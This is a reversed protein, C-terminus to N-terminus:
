CGRKANEMRGSFCMLEGDLVKEEELSWLMGAEKANMLWGRMVERDAPVLVEGFGLCQGGERVVGFDFVLVVKAREFARCIERAAMEGWQGWVEHEPCYMAIKRVMVREEVALMSSLDYVDYNVKACQNGESFLLRDGAFDFWVKPIRKVQWEEGM